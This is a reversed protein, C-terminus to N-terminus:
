IAFVGFQIVRFDELLHDFKGNVVHLRNVTVKSASLMGFGGAAYRCLEADGVINSGFQPM